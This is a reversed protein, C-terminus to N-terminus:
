LPCLILGFDVYVLNPELKMNKYNLIAGYFLSEM